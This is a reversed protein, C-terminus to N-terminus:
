QEAVSPRNFLGSEILSRNNKLFKQFFSIESPNYGDCFLINGMIDTVLTKFGRYVATEFTVEIRGNRVIYTVDTNERQYLRVYFQRESM